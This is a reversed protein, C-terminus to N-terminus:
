QVPCLEGILLDYGLHVTLLKILAHYGNTLHKEYCVWHIEQIHNREFWYFIIMTRLLLIPIQGISGIQFVKNLKTEKYYRQFGKLEFREETIRIEISGWRRYLRRNLNGYLSPNWLQLSTDCSFGLIFALLVVSIGNVFFLIVKFRVLM